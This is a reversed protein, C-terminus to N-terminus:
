KLQFIFISQKNQTLYEKNHKIVQQNRFRFKIKNNKNNDSNSTHMFNYKAFTIENESNINSDNELNAILQAKEIFVTDMKTIYKYQLITDHVIKEKFIIKESNKSIYEKEIKVITDSIFITDLIPENIINAINFKNKHNNFRYVHFVNLLLVIIILAALYYIWTPIIKKVTLDKEIENWVRQTNWNINKNNM